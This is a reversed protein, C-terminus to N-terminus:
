LLVGKKVQRAVKTGFKAIFERHEVYRQMDTLGRRREINEKQWTHLDELAKAVTEQVLSVTRSTRDMDDGGFEVRRTLGKTNTVRTPVGAATAIEVALPATVISYNGPFDLHDYFVPEAAADVVEDAVPEPQESVPNETPIDGILDETISNDVDSAADHVIKGGPVTVVQFPQGAAEGKKIATQKKSVVESSGDALILNYKTAM